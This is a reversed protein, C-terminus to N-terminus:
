MWQFITALAAYQGDRRFGTMQCLDTILLSTVSPPSPDSDDSEDYFQSVLRHQSSTVVCRLLDLLVTSYYSRYAAKGLDSLPREPGGQRGERRTIEFSADILLRGYGRKQCHPSVFLCALNNESSQKEKSFFGAVSYRYESALDVRRSELEFLVFFEISDVDYFLTKHDIFMKGLTCLCQSYLPTTSGDCRYLSCGITSWSTSIPVPPQTSHASKTRGRGVSSQSSSGGGGVYQRYIEAGPPLPCTCSTQHRLFSDRDSFYLLCQACM